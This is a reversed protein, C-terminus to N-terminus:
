DLFCQLVKLPFKLEKRYKARMEEATQNEAFADEGGGAAILINGNPNLVISLSGAYQRGALIINKRLKPTLFDKAIDIHECKVNYVRYFLDAEEKDENLIQTLCGTKKEIIRINEPFILNTDISMCYGDFLNITRRYGNHSHFNMLKVHCASFPYGKWSGSILRNGEYKTYDPICFSARAILVDPLASDPEFCTEDGYINKCEVAAIYKTIIEEIEKADLNTEKASPSIIMGLIFFVAAVGICVIGYRLGGFLYVIFFLCFFIVAMGGCFSGVKGRTTQNQKEQDELSRDLLKQIDEDTVKEPSLLEKGDCTLFSNCAYCFITGKNLVKGCNPCQIENDELIKGKKNKRKM